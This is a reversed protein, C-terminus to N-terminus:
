VRLFAAITLIEKARCKWTHNEHFYKYANNVIKQRENDNQLYYYLKDLFDSLDESFQVCNIGDKLVDKYEPPITNCFIMSGSMGIEFYRPTVELDGSTTALWIKSQNIKVAYDEYSVIRDGIFDSGKLFCSLDKQEALLVQIRERIDISSFKRNSIVKSGHLAGSFGIDYVKELGRNYFMAPDAAYSFLQTSIGTQKEFTKYDPVPTLIMSINNVKCFKLKKSLGNHPNHLWFLKPINIDKLGPVEGFGMKLDKFGSFTGVGFIIADPKFGSFKIIKDISSVASTYLCCNSVRTLENYLEGYYRYQERRVLMGPDIYIINM